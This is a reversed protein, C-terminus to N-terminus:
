KYHKRARTVGISEKKSNELNVVTQSTTHIGWKELKEKVTTVKGSHGKEGKGFDPDVAKAATAKGVTKAPGVYPTKDHHSHQSDGEIRTITGKNLEGGKGPKASKSSKTSAEPKSKARRDETDEAGSANVPAKPSGKRTMIGDNEGPDKGQDLDENVGKKVGKEASDIHADPQSKGIQGKSGAPKGAKTTAEPKSKARRDETEEAGSDNIPPKAKGTRKIVGDDIHADPETDVSADLEEKQVDEKTLGYDDLIEELDADSTNHKGAMTDMKDLWKVRDRTNMRKWKHQVKKAESDVWEDQEHIGQEGCVGCHEELANKHVQHLAEEWVSRRHPNLHLDEMKPKTDVKEEKGGEAETPEPAEEEDEEDDAKDKLKQVVLDAIKDIQEESPEDDDDDNEEEEPETEPEDQDGVPAEDEDEEDEAEMRSKVRKGLDEEKEDVEVEESSDHKWDKEIENFFKKKKEDDLEAPSKVGYKKLKSAFFKMYDEKDGEEEAVEESGKEKLKKQVEKMVKNHERKQQKDQKLVDAIVSLVDAM